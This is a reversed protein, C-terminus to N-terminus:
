SMGIWVSSNFLRGLDPEPTSIFPELHSFDPLLMASGLYAPGHLLLPPGLHVLDSASLAFGLRACGRALLSSGSHAPDPM